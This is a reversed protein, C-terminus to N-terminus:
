QLYLENVNLQDAALIFVQLTQVLSEKFNLMWLRWEAEMIARKLKVNCNKLYDHLFYDVLSRLWSEWIKM